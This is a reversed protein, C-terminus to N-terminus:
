ISPEVVGEGVQLSYFEIQSFVGNLNFRISTENASRSGVPRTKRSATGPLHRLSRRKM